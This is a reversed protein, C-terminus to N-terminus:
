EPVNVPPFISPTYNAVELCNDELFVWENFSVILYRFCSGDMAVFLLIGGNGFIM